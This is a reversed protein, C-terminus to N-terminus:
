INQGFRWLVGSPDHLTFDLMGWPQEVVESLIVDYKNTVQSQLIDQHTAHADKVVVHMMFNNALESNYFNQLFFACDDKKFYALTDDSWAEEFGIATYFSKSLKFDKAPVFAKIELFQIM